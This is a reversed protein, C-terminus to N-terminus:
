KPIGKQLAQGRKLHERLTPLTKEVFEKLAPNEATRSAAEFAAVNKEHDGVMQDIFSKDFETEYLEEFRDVTAQYQDELNDPITIENASALKRLEEKAKAYDTALMEGFEKVGPQAAKAKAIEGLRIETMSHQAAVKIFAEDPAGLAAIARMFSAGCLLVAGTFLASPIKM